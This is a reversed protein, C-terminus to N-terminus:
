SLIRMSRHTPREIDGPAVDLLKRALDALARATASEDGTEPAEQSHLIAGAHSRRGDEYETINIEITWTRTRTM